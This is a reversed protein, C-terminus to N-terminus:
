RGVAILFCVWAACLVAVRVRHLADWKRHERQAGPSIAGTDLRALRNNIPVLFFVSLLIAAAWLGAAAGLWAVGTQRWHAAIEGVLLVLVAAYWFPMVAGLRRAFFATAQPQAREDLKWLVPNVFASVAFEVGIMVGACVTTLTNLLFLM